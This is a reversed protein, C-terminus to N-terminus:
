VGVREGWTQLIELWDLFIRLVFDRYFYFSIYGLFLFYSWPHLLVTRVRHTSVNIKASSHLSKKWCCCTADYSRTPATRSKGNIILLPVAYYWHYLVWPYAGCTLKQYEYWLISIASYYCYVLLREIETSKLRLIVSSKFSSVFAYGPGAPWGENWMKKEFHADLTIFLSPKCQLQGKDARYSLLPVAAGIITDSTYIM